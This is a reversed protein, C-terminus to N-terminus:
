RDPEILGMQRQFELEDFYLHHEVIKGDEVTAVDCSRLKIHKGTAPMTEGSPLKVPKTNTGEFWGEDVAKNGAEIKSLYEYKADPFADIFQRWYDAIQDRRTMEGADPTSLVANDSYMSMVSDVSHAEVAAKTLKDLADRAQGM